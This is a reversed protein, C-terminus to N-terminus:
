VSITSITCDSQFVTQSNKIFNFMSVLHGLLEVGTYKKQLFSFIDVCLSKCLHVHCYENIALFSFRDLHVSLTHYTWAISYQAVTFFPSVTVISLLLLRISFVYLMIGIAYFELFSKQVFFFKQHCFPPLWKSSLLSYPSLSM